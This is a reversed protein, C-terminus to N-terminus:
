RRAELKRAQMATESLLLIDGVKVPSKVNRILVKGSDRGELVECRVQIIEGRVGTRGVLEVVKAPFGGLQDVQAEPAVKTKTAVKPTVKAPAQQTKKPAKSKEVPEELKKAPVKPTKVVEVKKEVKVVEKKEAM